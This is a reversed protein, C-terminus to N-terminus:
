ASRNAAFALELTLGNDISLVPGAKPPTMGFDSINVNTTADGNVSSDGFQANVTWTVPRTVGHVTLDGSLQFSAQGSTPLPSPLGQAERPVFTAVPYSRTDLTNGKIFNDRRSQDSSLQSLDVKIQSQDAIISGDPNLAISGTVSKSTGVAESPLSRGALQEHAHYSAHSASPDVVLTLVQASGGPAAATANAPTPVAATPSAATASSSTPSSSTPSTSTATQTPVSTPANSTTNTGCAVALMAVFAAIAFRLPTM